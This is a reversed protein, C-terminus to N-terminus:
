FRTLPDVQLWLSLLGILTGYRGTDSGRGAPPDLATVPATPMHYSPTVMSEVQQASWLGLDIDMASSADELRAPPEPEFADGSAFGVSKSPGDSESLSTLSSDEDAIQEAPPPGGETAQWEDDSEVRRPARRIGIRPGLPCAILLRCILFRCLFMRLPPPEKASDDDSTPARHSWVANRSPGSRTVQPKKAVGTRAARGTTKASSRGARPNYALTRTTSPPM